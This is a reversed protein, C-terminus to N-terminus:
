TDRVYLVPMKIERLHFFDADASRFYFAIPKARTINDQGFAAIEVLQAAAEDPASFQVEANMLVVNEGHARVPVPEQRIEEGVKRLARVSFGVEQLHSVLCGVERADVARLQLRKGHRDWGGQVFLRSITATRSAISRLISRWLRLRATSSSSKLASQVLQHGAFDADAIEVQRRKADVRAPPPLPM